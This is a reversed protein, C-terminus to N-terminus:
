FLLFGCFCIVLLLFASFYASFSSFFHPFLFGSSPVSFSRFFLILKRLEISCLMESRVLLSPTRTGESANEDTYHLHIACRGELCIIRTRTGNGVKPCQFNLIKRKQAPLSTPWVCWVTFRTADHRRYTRIRGRGSKEDTHHEVSLVDAQWASLVPELGTVSKETKCQHFHCVHVNIYNM